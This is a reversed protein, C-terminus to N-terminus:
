DHIPHYNRIKPKSRIREFEKAYKESAERIGEKHGKKRGVTQGWAWVAAAGVAAVITGFAYKAIQEKM